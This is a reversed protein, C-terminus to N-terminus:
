RPDKRREGQRREVPLDLHVTTGKHVVSRVTLVGGHERMISQSLSLGLGTGRTRTTFFPNSVRPLLEKPIGHGTDAVKVQVYRQLPGPGARTCSRDGARRGTGRRRYPLRRIVSIEVTLEGGSPMAEEANRFLNLLVQEIQSVDIYIRPIRGRVRLTLRIGKEELGARVLDAARRVAEEVLAERLEPRNPRAYRLLGEVIRNLRAAEDLIIKTFRQRSDDPEMQEALVQACNAIGTLPNRIEHAVGASLEGIVALRDRQREAEEVARHESLDQFFAVLARGKGARVPGRAMQLSIPVEGGDARALYLEVPEVKRRLGELLPNVEAGLPRFVRTCDSGIMEAESQGLIAAARGGAYTVRGLADIGLIGYPLVSGVAARFASLEELEHRATWLELLLALLGGLEADDLRERLEPSLTAGPACLLLGGRLKGKERVARLFLPEAPPASRRLLESLPVTGADGAREWFESTELELTWGDRPDLNLGSSALPVFSGDPDAHFVVYPLAGLSEDLLKRGFDLADPDPSDALKPSSRSM